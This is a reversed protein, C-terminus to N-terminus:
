CLLGHSVAATRGCCTIAISFISASFPVASKISLTFADPGVEGFGGKGILVPLGGKHFEFQLDDKTSSSLKLLATRSLAASVHEKQRWRWALYGALAVLVAAAAVTVVVPVIIEIHSTSGTTTSPPEASLDSSNLDCM